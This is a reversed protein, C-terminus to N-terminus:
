LQVLRLLQAEYNLRKVLRNKWRLIVQNGIVIVKIIPVTYYDNRVLLTSM